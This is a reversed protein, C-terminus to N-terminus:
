ESENCIWSSNCLLNPDDNLKNVWDCLQGGAVAVANWDKLHEYCLCHSLYCENDCAACRHNEYYYDWLDKIDKFRNM